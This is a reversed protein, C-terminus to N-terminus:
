AAGTEATNPAKSSLWTALEATALVASSHREALEDRLYGLVRRYLHNRSGNLLNPRVEVAAIRTEDPLLRGLSVLASSFASLVVAPVHNSHTLQWEIPTEFKTPGWERPYARPDEFPHCIYRFRLGSSSCATLCDEVYERHGRKTTYGNGALDQGVFWVESTVKQATGPSRNRLHSWTNPAVNFGRAALSSFMTFYTLDRPVASNGGWVLRRAHRRRSRDRGGSPGFAFELNALGDDVVLKTKCKARRILYNCMQDFPNGVVLADTDCISRLIRNAFRCQTIEDIMWGFRWPAFGVGLRRVSSDAISDLREPWHARACMDNVARLQYTSTTVLDSVLVPHWDDFLCARAELAALYQLPTRVVFFCRRM